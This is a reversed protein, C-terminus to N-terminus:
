YRMRRRPHGHGLEQINIDEYHRIDPTPSNLAGVVTIVDFRFNDIHHYNVYHTIARRLNYRKAYDIAELPDGFDRNRRTKVEVFVYLDGRRAVIDIDRHGSHWDQNIIDYGLGYLYREAVEEGWKGMQVHEATM